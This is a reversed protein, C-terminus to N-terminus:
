NTRIIRSVLNNKPKRQIVNKPYKIELLKILTAKSIVAKIYDFYYYNPDAYTFVVFCLEGRTNPMNVLSLNGYQIGDSEILELLQQLNGNPVRQDALYGCEMCIAYFPLQKFFALLDPKPLTTTSSIDKLTRRTIIKVEIVDCDNRMISYAGEGFHTMNITTSAMLESLTSRTQNKVVYSTRYYESNLELCKNFYWYHTMVESGWTCIFTPYIHNTILKM